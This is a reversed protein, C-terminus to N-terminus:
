VECYYTRIPLVMRDFLKLLVRPNGSAFKNTSGLLTCMATRASECLEQINVKFNGNNTIITALYPYLKYIELPEKKLSFRHM